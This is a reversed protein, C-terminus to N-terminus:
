FTAKLVAGNNVFTNNWITSQAEWDVLCGRDIPRRFEIEGFDNCTDLQAGVYIRSGRDRVISNQIIHCDELKPDDSVFGAKMTWGGNDVVLTKSALLREAPKPRQSTM